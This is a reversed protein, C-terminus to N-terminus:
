TLTLVIAEPPRALRLPLGAGEFGRSVILTRGNIERRGAWTGFSGPPLFPHIWRALLPALWDYFFLQGGHTHGALVALPKRGPLYVADPNHSLLLRPAQPAHKDFAAYWDLKGAAERFQAAPIHPGQQYYTAANQLDDVGVVLLTQSGVTIEVAQNRLVRVGHAELADVLPAVDHSLSSYDHNGLVALMPVGFSAFQALVHHLLPLYRASHDLFDGGFLLLDFPARRHRRLLRNIKARLVRPRTWRSLHLDSIWLARIPNALPADADSVAQRRIQLRAPEIWWAYVFALGLLGLLRKIM